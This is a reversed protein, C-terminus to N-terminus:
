EAAQMDEIAAIKAFSEFDRSCKAQDRLLLRVFIVTLRFNQEHSRRDPAAFSALIRQVRARASTIEWFTSQFLWWDTVSCGIPERSTAVVHAASNAHLIAEATTRGGGIVHECNDIFLLLEKQALACAVHDASAEGTPLMLGVAAAVAAPVLMPESLPALAAFWVGDAFEPLLRRAAALALRTKGIGGRGSFTVNCCHGNQSPTFAWM